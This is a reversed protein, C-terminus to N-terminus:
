QKGPTPSPGTGDGPPKLEAPTQSPTMEAQPGVGPRGPLKLEAGSEVFQGLAPVYTGAVRLRHPEWFLGRYSVNLEFKLTATGAILAAIQNEVDASSQFLKAGQPLLMAGRQESYKRLPLAADNLTMLPQARVSYAPITGLNRITVDCYLVRHHEGGHAYHTRMRDAVLYPRYAVLLASLVLLALVSTAIATVWNAIATAREAAM